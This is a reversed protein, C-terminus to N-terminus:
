SPPPTGGAPEPRSPYDYYTTPGCDFASMLFEGRLRERVAQKQGTWM